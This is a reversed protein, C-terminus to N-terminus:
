VGYYKKVEKCIYDNKAKEIDGNYHKNAYKTLYDKYEVVKNKKKLDTFLIELVVLMHKLSMAYKADENGIMYKTKQKTEDDLLTLYYVGNKDIIWQCEVKRESLWKTIEEDIINERNM